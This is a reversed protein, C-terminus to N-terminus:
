GGSPLRLAIRRRVAEDSVFGCLQQVDHLMEILNEPLSGHAQAIAEIDAGSGESPTITASKALTGAGSQPM